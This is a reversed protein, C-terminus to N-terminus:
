TDIREGYDNEYDELTYDLGASVKALIKEEISGKVILHYYNVVDRTQGARRIRGRSQDFLEASVTPNLYIIYGGKQLNHGHSGSQYQCAIVANDYTDYAIDDKGDGNIYSFPRNGVINKIANFDEKFSYFVIVRENELTELLDSLMTMKDKNYAGCLQRLRLFKIVPLDGILKVGDVEVIGHKDMKKYETTKDVYYSQDNDDPLEVIDETRRFVCGLSRLKSNLEKINKYSVVEKVRIEGFQRLEWNCYRDWFDKKSVKWGLLQCQSILNEFKGFILGEDKDLKGGSVPTGSLLIVNTPKLKLIFKTRKRTLDQIRSSEDLMLTFNKLSLLISRRFILDYNIVMVGPRINAFSMKNVKTLDTVTVEPYFTQFHNVWYDVQSKQCVVLNFPNKLQILKEAGIFTKGAGCGLYFAVNKKDKVEDLIIQQSPFLKM